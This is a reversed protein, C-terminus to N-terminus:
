ENEESEKMWKNAWENEESEGENVQGLYSMLSMRQQGWYSTLSM